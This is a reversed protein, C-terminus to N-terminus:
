SCKSYDCRLCSECGDSKILSMDNCKPCQLYNGPPLPHKNKDKNMGLHTEIFKGIHAVISPVYSGESWYGGRPDFVSTLEEVLFEINSEKRFVASMVRTLAVVWQYHEMKKSNIFIEFPKGNMDNITVYLTAENTPDKIKYTKGTLTPERKIKESQSTTPVVPIKAPEDSKINFGTIKQNIQIM